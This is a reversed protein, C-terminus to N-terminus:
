NDINEQRFFQLNYNSSQNNNKGGRAFVVAIVSKCGAQKLARAAEDLTSGSAVVDDVLIIKAPISSRSDWVFANKLNQQREAKSLKAQQKTKRIRQLGMSIPRKTQLAIERALLESQNFGRWFKRTWHLPIPVLTANTWVSAPINKSIQEAMLPALDKLGRFKFFEVVEEVPTSFYKTAAWIGDLWQFEAENAPPAEFHSHEACLFNGECQCIICRPPFLAECFWKGIKRLFSM